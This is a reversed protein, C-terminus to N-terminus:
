GEDGEREFHCARTFARHTDARAWGARADGVWADGVSWTGWVGCWVWGVGRAWWANM